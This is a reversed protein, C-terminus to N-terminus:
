GFRGGRMLGGTGAAFIATKGADALEASDIGIRTSGPLAVSLLGFLGHRGIVLWGFSGLLSAGGNLDGFTPGFAVATPLWGIGEGPLGGWIPGFPFEGEGFGN